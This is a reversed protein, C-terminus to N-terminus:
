ADFSRRHGINRILFYRPPEYHNESTFPSHFKDEVLDARVFFANVGTFSCGVLKYGKENGLEELAKLSAGFWFSGDWKADPKYDIVWRMSAPWTANYEIMVVRPHWDEIAKWIWYDNRDIDISLFDFEQPVDNEELLREINKTTVVANKIAVHGGFKEQAKKFFAKNSEIWFGHWGELILLATNCYLGDGCGFEVFFRQTLGIRKFIETIIGDEGGQSFVQWEFKNLRKSDTYKPNEYLNRRLFEDVLLQKLKDM